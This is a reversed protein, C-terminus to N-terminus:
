ELRRDAEQQQFPNTEFSGMTELHIGSRRDARKAVSLICMLMVGLVAGLFLGIILGTIM